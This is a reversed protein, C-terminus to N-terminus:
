GHAGVRLIGLYRITMYKGLDQSWHGLYGPDNLAHVRFGVRFIDVIYGKLPIYM